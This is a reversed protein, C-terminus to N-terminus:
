GENRGHLGEEGGQKGRWERGYENGGKMGGDGVVDGNGRGM